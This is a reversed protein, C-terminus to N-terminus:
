SNGVSLRDHKNLFDKGKQTLKHKAYNLNESPIVEVLELKILEKLVYYAPPITEINGFREVWIIINYWSLLGDNNAIKELIKKTAKLKLYDM